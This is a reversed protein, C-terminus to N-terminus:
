VNLGGAFVCKGRSELWKGVMERFDLLEAYDLFDPSLGALWNLPTEATNELNVLASYLNETEAYMEGAAERAGKLATEIEVRLQEFSSRASKTSRLATKANAAFDDLADQADQIVAELYEADGEFRRWTSKVDNM